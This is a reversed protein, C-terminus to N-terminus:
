GFNDHRGARDPLYELSLFGQNGAGVRADAFPDGDAQGMGTGVHDDVVARYRFSGLLHNLLGAAAAAPGAARDQVVRRSSFFRRRAAM